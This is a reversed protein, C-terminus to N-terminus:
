QEGGAGAGHDDSLGAGLVYGTGHGLLPLCGLGRLLEGVEGCPQAGDCARAHEDGDVLLGPPGLPQVAEDGAQGVESRVGVRRVHLTGGVFQATGGQSQADVGPPEAARPRGRPLPNVPEQHPRDRVPPRSPIGALDTGPM